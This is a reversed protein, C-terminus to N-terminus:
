KYFRSSILVSLSNPTPSSPKFPHAGPGVACWTFCPPPPYPYIEKEVRSRHTGPAHPRLPPYPDSILLLGAMFSELLSLYIPPGQVERKSEEGFRESEREREIEYM